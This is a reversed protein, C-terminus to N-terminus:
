NKKKRRNRMKQRHKMGGWPMIDKAMFLGESILDGMMKVEQNKEISIIPAIFVDSAYQVTWSKKNFDLLTFEKESVKQITGSLYGKEPNMWMKKKKSQISEYLTIGNAFANDLWRGGGSIFFLTGILISLGTSFGVLRSWMLKYGKKSKQIFYIASVLFIILALIWIIPLLGLFMELTSHGFHTLLNFETQQVAYLIVSFAAAGVLVSIIFGIWILANKSIFYWKPTPTIKEKKIRDILKKAKDM